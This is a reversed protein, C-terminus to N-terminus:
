SMQDTYKSEHHVHQQVLFSDSVLNLIKIPNNRLFSILCFLTSNFKNSLNWQFKLMQNLVKTTHLIPLIFAFNM